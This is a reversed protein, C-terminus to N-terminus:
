LVAIAFFGTVWRVTHEAKNTQRRSQWLAREIKRESSYCRNFMEIYPEPVLDLLKAYARLYGKIFVPEPMNHYDDVELLEIIRVRLHLKGAVYETSYGKANRVSALMLGPKEQVQEETVEDMTVTTNM